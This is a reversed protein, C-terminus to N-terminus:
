SGFQEMLFSRWRLGTMRVTIQLDVGTNNLSDTHIESFLNPAHRVQLRGEVHGELELVSLDVVDNNIVPLQREPIPLQASVPVVQTPDIPTTPVSKQSTGIHSDRTFPLLITFKM